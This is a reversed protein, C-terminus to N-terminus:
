RRDSLIREILESVVTEPLRMREGFLQPVDKRPYNAIWNEISVEPDRDPRTRILNEVAALYENSCIISDVEDQSINLFWALTQLSRRGTYWCLKAITQAHQKYMPLECDEKVFDICIQVM